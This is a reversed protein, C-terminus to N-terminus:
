ILRLVIMPINCCCAAVAATWRCFALRLIVAYMSITVAAVVGYLQYTRAFEVVFLVSCCRCCWCYSLRCATDLAIQMFLLINAQAIGPVYLVFFLFCLLLLFSLTVSYRICM